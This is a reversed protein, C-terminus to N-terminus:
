ARSAPRSDISRTTRSRARATAARTACRSGTTRAAGERRGAGHDHHAPGPRGAHGLRGREARLRRRDARARADVLYEAGNFAGSTEEGCTLAMKVTRHPTYAEQWSACWRTSGSRRWRRTTPSAARTSIATKRSWRSPTGPGTRANRRSWTSTPSCCSRRRRRIAAAAAGRGPRRGEPARAVEFLHIDQEPMGAKRLRAAMKAAAETCSGASLTTNTEVLERFLERYAVQDPRLPGDAAASAAAATLICSAFTSPFSLRSM